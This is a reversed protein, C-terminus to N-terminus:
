PNEAKIRNLHIIDNLKLLYYVETSITISLFKKQISIDIFLSSRIVPHDNNFGRM